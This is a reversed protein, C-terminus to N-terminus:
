TPSLLVIIRTGSAAQNFDAKLIALSGTDLTALPPQGAPTEHTTLRAWAFAGGVVALLLILIFLLKRRTM